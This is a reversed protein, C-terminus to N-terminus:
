VEVKYLKYYVKLRGPINVGTYINKRMERGDNNTRHFIFSTFKKSTSVMGNSPSLNPNFGEQVVESYSLSLPPHEGEKIEVEKEIEQGFIMLIAIFTTLDKEKKRAEDESKKRLKDHLGEARDLDGPSVLLDHLKIYGRIRNVIEENGEEIMKYLLYFVYGGEYGIYSYEPPLIKKEKKEAGFYSGSEDRPVNNGIAVASFQSGSPMQGENIARQTFKNVKSMHNNFREEAEKRTIM